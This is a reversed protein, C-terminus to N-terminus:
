GGTRFPTQDFTPREGTPACLRAALPRRLVRDPLVVMVTDAEVCGDTDGATMPTSMWRLVATAIGGAALTAPVMVPGPHLGVPPRRAAHVPRGAGDAFGVLPLAPMRCPTTSGNRLMLRAGQHDADGAAESVTLRLAGARCVPETEAARAASVSLVAMLVLATGSRLARRM